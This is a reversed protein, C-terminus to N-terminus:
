FKEPAVYQYLIGLYDYACSIIQKDPNSLQMISNFTASFLESDYQFDEYPLFEYPLILKEIIKLADMIHLKLNKESISFINAREICWGIYPLVFDLVMATQLENLPNTHTDNARKKANYFTSNGHFFHYLIEGQTEPLFADTKQNEYSYMCLFLPVRLCKLLTKNAMTLGISTESFNCNKLHQIIDDDELGLLYVNQFSSTFYAAQTERSTAIIRVNAYNQHIVTIENSLLSRCSYTDGKESVSIENFGDLLILYQPINNPPIQQLEKEVLKLTDDSIESLSLHNELLQGIYRTIFNTKHYKEEYWDQIQSPCQKLEVFIPVPKGSKYTTPLKEKNWYEEELLQQLFTTKGIGGEGTIAIDQASHDKYIDMLPRIEGDETRAHLRFNNPTIFGHPLLREIINLDYFRSGEQRSAIFSKQEAEWIRQCTPFYLVTADLNMFALSLGYTSKNKNRKNQQMSSNYSGCLICAAILRALQFCNTPDCTSLLTVKHEEPLYVCEEILLRLNSYIENHRNIKRLLREEITKCFKNFNAEECLNARLESKLGRDKFLQKATEEYSASESLPEDTFLLVYLASNTSCIADAAEKLVHLVEGLIM